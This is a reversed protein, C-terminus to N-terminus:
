LWSFRPDDVRSYPVLSLKLEFNNSNIDSINMIDFFMNMLSCFKATRVAEPPGYKLLAKSVTSSLVQAALKVNMIYYPTLKIHEMCLKPLIHLGCEQDEYFIDAIHNQLLFMGSKWMYRTFKSSGSNSLCNRSTKLLHPVDPIFYLFRNETGGFLNRTRYTVDTEPKMDDDQTLHLNMPFLKHNPSVGDCTVATVKLSYCKECISIAKWLLPFMQSALIGDTAFNVLSFKFLNVINRILFIFVHSAVTTVKSLIAYNLDIGGLDQGLLEGNHKDWVLNEQIKMEDM